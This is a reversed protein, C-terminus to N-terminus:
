EIKYHFEFPVQRREIKVMFSSQDRLAQLLQLWDELSDIKEGNIEKIVDGNILGLAQFISEPQIRYIRFGELRRESKHKVFHPIIRAKRKTSSSCRCSSDSEENKAMKEKIPKEESNGEVYELAEFLKLAEEPQKKFEMECSELLSKEVAKKSLVVRKETIKGTAKKGGALEKARRLEAEALGPQGQREYLLSKDIHSMREWSSGPMPEPRVYSSHSDPVEMLDKGGEHHPLMYPDWDHEQDESPIEIRAIGGKLSKEPVNSMMIYIIFAWALCFVLVFAIISLILIRNQRKLNELVSGVSDLDEQKM